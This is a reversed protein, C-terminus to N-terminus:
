FIRNDLALLSLIGVFYALFLLLIGFFDVSINFSIFLINIYVQPLINYIGFLLYNNLYNYYSYFM